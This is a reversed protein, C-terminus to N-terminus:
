SIQSTLKAKAGVLDAGEGITAAVQFKTLLGDPVYTYNSGGIYFTCLISILSGSFPDYINHRPLTTYQGHRRMGIMVMM